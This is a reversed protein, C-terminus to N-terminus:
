WIPTPTKQMCQLEMRLLVVWFLVVPKQSSPAHNNGIPSRFGNEDFCLPLVPGVPFIEAGHSNPIPAFGLEADAKMVTGTWGRQNSKIYSYLEISRYVTYGLYIFAITVVPILLLTLSFTLTKKRNLEQKTCM